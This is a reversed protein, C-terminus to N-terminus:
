GASETVIEGTPFKLAPMKGSPNIALFEPSRQENKELSITKFEYAAGAEALACELSFAGSRRDGYLVYTMPTGRQSRLLILVSPVSFQCCSTDARPPGCRRAMVVQRSSIGSVIGCVRMVGSSM